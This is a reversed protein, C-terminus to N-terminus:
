RKSNAFPDSPPAHADAAKGAPAGGNGGSKQEIAEYEKVTVDLNAGGKGDKAWNTVTLYGKVGVYATLGKEEEHLGPPENGSFDICQLYVKEKVEQGSKDKRKQQVALTFRCYEKGGASTKREFKNVYGRAEITAM